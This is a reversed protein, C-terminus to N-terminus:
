GKSFFINDSIHENNLNGKNQKPNTSREKNFSTMFIVFDILTVESANPYGFLQRESTTMAYRFRPYLALACCLYPLSEPFRQPFVAHWPAVDFSFTVECNSCPENQIQHLAYGNAILDFM